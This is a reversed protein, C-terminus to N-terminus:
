STQSSSWWLPFFFCRIFSLHIVQWCKILKRRVRIYIYIFDALGQTRLISTSLQIIRRQWIRFQIIWSVSFINCIQMLFYFKQGIFRDLSSCASWLAGSQRYPMFRVSPFLSCRIVSAMKSYTSKNISTKFWKGLACVAKLQCQCTRPSSHLIVQEM